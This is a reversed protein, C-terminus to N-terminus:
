RRGGRAKRMPDPLAAFATVPEDANTLARAAKIAAAAKLNGEISKKVEALDAAPFRAGLLARSAEALADVATPTSAAAAPAAQPSAEASPAALPAVALAKLFGRRPANM